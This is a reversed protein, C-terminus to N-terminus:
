AGNKVELLGHAALDRLLTFLQIECVQPDIDYEELLSRHIESVSRPEEIMQWIRAGVANLGYYVGDALNLIVVEGSLDCSVQQKVCTVISNLGLAVGM